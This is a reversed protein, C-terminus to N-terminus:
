WKIIMGACQFYREEDEEIGQVSFCVNVVNLGNDTDLWSIRALSPTNREVSPRIPVKGRDAQCM